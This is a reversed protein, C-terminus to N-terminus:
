LAEHEGGKADEAAAEVKTHFYGCNGYDGFEGSM